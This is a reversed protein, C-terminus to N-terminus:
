FYAKMGIARVHTALEDGAAGTTPGGDTGPLALAIRARDGEQRRQPIVTGAQAGVGLHRSEFGAARADVGDDKPATLLLVANTALHDHERGASQHRRNEQQARRGAHPGIPERVAATLNA